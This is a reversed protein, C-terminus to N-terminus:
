AAMAAKPENCGGDAMMKDDILRWLYPKAPLDTRLVGIECGILGNIKEELDWPLTVNVEGIGAVLVGGDDVLEHLVGVVEEFPHLQSINNVKESM